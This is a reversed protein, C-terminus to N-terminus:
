ITYVLDYNFPLPKNQEEFENLREQLKNICEETVEYSKAQTILEEIEM